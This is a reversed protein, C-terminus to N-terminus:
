DRLGTIIEYLNIAITAKIGYREKVLERRWYFGRGVIIGASGERM